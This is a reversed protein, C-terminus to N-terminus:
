GTQKFLVARVPSGDAGKLKLPMFFLFYEGPTIDKLNIGELIVIGNTLLTTHTPHSKSKFKEISLYDIGVAKVKKEVLYEAAEVTLYVFDRQFGQLEWLESNRTKFLVVDRAQIDLDVLAKRDIKEKVSLQFVKARGWFQDLGVQDLNKGDRLFHRPVDVHTGTHSGLRLELMNALDGQDISAFPKLEPQTDGPYIPLDVSIPVSIDYWENYEFVM